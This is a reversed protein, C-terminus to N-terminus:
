FERHLSRVMKKHRSPLPDVSVIVWHVKGHFASLSVRPGRIDVDFSSHTAARVAM